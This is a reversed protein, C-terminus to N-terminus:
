GPTACSSGSSSQGASAGLRGAATRWSEWEGGGWRRGRCGSRCCWPSTRMWWTRRRRREGAQGAGAAGCGAGGGRVGGRQREHRGLRAAPRGGGAALALAGARGGRGALAAGIAGPEEVLVAGPIREVLVYAYQDMALIAMWHAADASLGERQDFARVADAFPGGGPVVLLRHRRGAQPWRARRRGGAGGTHRQARRGGEGRDAPGTREDARWRRSTPWCGRWRRPLPPGPRRASGIPWRSSRSGPGARPKPRSSIAWARDGGRDDGCPLARPGPPHRRGRARAPGRRAGPRHRRHGGRRADRPRRLRRAGAARRCARADRSPRRGDAGHLGGPALQGLWVHADGILPSGRPRSAPRTRGVAPGRPAAGGGADPGRRHLGARPEPAARSRHPGARRGPRRRASHHRHLHHRHRGPHRRPRVPRGAHGDGGLEVGRRGASRRRAAAPTVFRGDVTYVHVPDGPFARALADLVFAVGERKTRFAQSLEATMTVAHPWGRRRGAAARAVSCRPRARRSGAPDRLADVRQPMARAGRRRPDIRAAKTNVGGIDWGLVPTRAHRTM